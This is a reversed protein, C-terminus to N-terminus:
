LVGWGTDVTSIHCCPFNPRPLIVEEGADSPKWFGEKNCIPTAESILCVEGEVHELQAM